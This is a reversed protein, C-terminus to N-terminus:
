PVSFVTGLGSTVVVRAINDGNPPEVVCDAVANPNPANLEYTGATYGNTCDGTVLQNASDEAVHAIAVSYVNKAYGLAARELAATRANLLNPILVVSLIGIIALVILLEILTFGTTRLGHM